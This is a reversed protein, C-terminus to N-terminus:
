RRATTVARTEYADALSRLLPRAAPRTRAIARLMAALENLVIQDSSTAARM